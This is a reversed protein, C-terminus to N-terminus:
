PSSRMLRRMLLGTVRLRLGRALADFYTTNVAFGRRLRGVSRYKRSLLAACFATRRAFACPNWDCMSDIVPEHPPPYRAGRLRRLTLAFRARRRETRRRLRRQDDLLFVRM